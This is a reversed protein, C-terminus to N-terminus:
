VIEKLPNLAKLSSVVYQLHSNKTGQLLEVTQRKACSVKSPGIMQKLDGANGSHSPSRPMGVEVFADNCGASFLFFFSFRPVVKDDAIVQLPFLGSDLELSVCVNVAKLQM